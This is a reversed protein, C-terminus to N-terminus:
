EKNNANKRLLTRQGSNVNRGVADLKEWRWCAAPGWKLLITLGSIELVIAFEGKENVGSKLGTNRGERLLKLRKWRDV